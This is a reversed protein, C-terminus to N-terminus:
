QKESSPHSSRYREAQHAIMSAYQEVRDGFLKKFRAEETLRLAATKVGDAEKARFNTTRIQANKFCYDVYDVPDETIGALVYGQTLLFPIDDMLALPFLPWDTPHVKNIPVESGGLRMPRLPLKGKEKTFLVRCILFVRLSHEPGSSSAAMRRLASEQEDSKLAVFDNAYTMLENPNFQDGTTSFLTHRSADRMKPDIADMSRGTASVRSPQSTECGVSVAVLLIAALAFKVM